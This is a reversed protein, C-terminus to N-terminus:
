GVPLRLLMGRHPGIPAIDYPETVVTLGSPLKTVEVSM